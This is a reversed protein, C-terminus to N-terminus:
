RAVPQIAEEIEAQWAPADMTESKYLADFVGYLDTYVRNDNLISKLQKTDIPIIKLPFHEDGVWYGMDKRHRFDNVVNRSIEPAIFVCYDNLNKSKAMQVGLHRSVPEMEMERMGSGSSLTAEILTTHEPYEPREGYEYVIDASGGVAHSIPLLDPGLSLKMHDLIDGVQESEKYWVIGLIYEFITSPTADETVKEYIYNDDRDEFANLLAILSDDDFQTDILKRFRKYRENEVYTQAAELDPMDVGLDSALQALLRSEDVDFSPSIEQMETLSTLSGSSQFVEETVADRAIAFFAKPLTDLEVQGDQFLLINALKFYRRNLDEYDRLTSITKFLHLYEFFLKKFETETKVSVFPCGDALADFREKVVKRSTARGFLLRRWLVGPTGGMRRVATDLEELGAESHQLFTKHLAEYLRFYPKDYLRSKRNMGIVTVLDESPDEKMWLDYARQYNPKEMLVAVIVENITTKGDRIKPIAQSIVDLSTEDAVLPMLYTFEEASLHDFRTLLEILVLLPRVVGTSTSVETKLLQELYILSDADLGLINDDTFSTKEAMKVVAHGVETIERGSTTLGLEVLGSTKERADKAKRPANGVLAGRAHLLDYFDEQVEPDSWMWQQGPPQSQQFEKLLMLQQEIKLKMQATRFSTTGVVWMFSQYPINEYATEAM